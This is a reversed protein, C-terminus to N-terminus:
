KPSQHAKLFEVANQLGRCSNLASQAIQLVRFYLKLMERRSFFALFNAVRSPLVNENSSNCRLSSSMEKMWISVKKEMELREFKSCVVRGDGEEEECCNLVFACKM